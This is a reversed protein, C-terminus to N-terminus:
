VPARLQKVADRLGDLTLPFMPYIGGIASVTPHEWFRKPDPNLWVSAQCADRVCRLWDLGNLGTESDVPSGWPNGHHRGFLEWPAMSADGVWVLRHHPSLKALISEMPVREQTAFDKYLYGYPVNHFHWTTISKFGKLDTAATFLQSVLRAHHDMSGGTDLLLVLHVKNQKARTFELDIEGGNDVTKRITGDVDIEPAGERTLKRLARLAVRFDRVDLRSDSRYNAWRREGAVAVASRAGGPGVRIGNRSRGQSGYPSTGGTGIWHNGGDHRETQEKLREYFQRRLEDFSMDLEVIEGPKQQAEALWALLEASVEPQLEVGAFTSEFALDWADFQTESQVLIARGFNYLGELDVVLGQEIGKLFTLWEGMGVSVKQARLNFLLLDFM